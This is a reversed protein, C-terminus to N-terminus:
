QLFKNEVCTVKHGQFLRDLPLTVQDIGDDILQLDDLPDRQLQGIRRIGSRQANSAYKQCVWAVTPRERFYAFSRARSLSSHFSQKLSFEPHSKASPALLKAEHM